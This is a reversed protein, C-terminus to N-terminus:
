VEEVGEVLFEKIDVSSLQGLSLQGNFSNLLSVSLRPMDINGYEQKRMVAVAVALLTGRKFDLEGALLEGGDFLLEISMNVRLDERDGLNCSIGPLLLSGSLNEPVTDVPAAPVRRVTDAAAVSSRKPSLLVRPDVAEWFEDLGTSRWLSRLQVGAGDWYTRVDKLRALLDAGIGSFREAVADGSSKGSGIGKVLEVGSNIRGAGWELGGEWLGMARDLGLRASLGKFGIPVAKGVSDAAPTSTSTTDGDGRKPTSTSAM